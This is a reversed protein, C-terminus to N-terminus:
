GWRLYRSWGECCSIGPLFIGTESTGGCPDGEDGMRKATIAAAIISIGGEKAM